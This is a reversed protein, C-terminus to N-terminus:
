FELRKSSFVYSNLWLNVSIVASIKEKIIMSVDGRENIFRMFVTSSLM